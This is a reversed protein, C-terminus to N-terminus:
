IKRGVSYYALEKLLEKANSKLLRKDIERWAEEVIKEARKKAYEISGNKKIIEIAERIVGEETPHSNLIEILRKKDSESGNKLSHIVMLTRKGEHIDGGVMGKGEAFEGESLELIDDQIQFGVGISEGFRALADTKEKSANGIIAGLKAAFRALVGTKCICMQLYQQETIEAKKGRHWYIDTAQGISVRMMEQVYLDYVRRVKEQSLKKSNTYFITMPLFYMINSANLAIDIGYILHTCPKGRREKADDEIDDACITGEHVLEVIPTFPLAKEEKGGIGECALLALAPRWRKGGRDLSDWIPESISKTLTEADYEFRAEGLVNELWQETIKRPIIKEIERDILAKKEQLYQEIRM